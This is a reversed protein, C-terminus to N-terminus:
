DLVVFALEVELSSRRPTLTARGQDALPVVTGLPSALAVEVQVVEVGRALTTMPAACLVLLTLARLSVM